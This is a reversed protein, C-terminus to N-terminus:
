PAEGSATAIVFCLAAITLARLSTKVIGGEPVSLTVPSYNRRRRVLAIYTM